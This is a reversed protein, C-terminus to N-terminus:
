YIKKPDYRERHSKLLYNIANKSVPGNFNSDSSKCMNNNAKREGTKRFNLQTKFKMSALYPSFSSCKQTSKEQKIQANRTAEQMDTQKSEQIGLMGFDLLFELDTTGKKKIFTNRNFSYKLKSNYSRSTVSQQRIKPSNLVSNRTHDADDLKLMDSEEEILLQGIEM